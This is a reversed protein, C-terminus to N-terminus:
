QVTCCPILVALSRWNKKQRRFRWRVGVLLDSPTSDSRQRKLQPLAKRRNATRPEADLSRECPPHKVAAASASACACACADSLWTQEARAYSVRGAPSARKQTQFPKSHPLSISCLTTNKLCRPRAFPYTDSTTWYETVARRGYATARAQWSRGSFESRRGRGTQHSVMRLCNECSRDERASRTIVVVSEPAVDVAHSLFPQKRPGIHM